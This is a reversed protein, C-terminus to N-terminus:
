FNHLVVRPFGQPDCIAVPDNIRASPVATTGFGPKHAKFAAMGAPTFPLEHEPKGDSPMAKAGNAQIADGPGKAPEWIGSIDRKAAPASKQGKVDADYVAGPQRVEQQQAHALISFTLVAILASTSVVFRKIM